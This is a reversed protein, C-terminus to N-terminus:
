KNSRRTRRKSQRRSKSKKKRRKLKNGAGGLKSPLEPPPRRPLAAKAAMQSTLSEVQEAKAAIQSTLNEVQEAKAAIQSTLSDIQSNLEINKRELDRIVQGNNDQAMASADLDTQLKRLDTQLKTLDAKTSRKLEKMERGHKEASTHKTQQADVAAKRLSEHETAMTQIEKWWGKEVLERAGIERRFRSTEAKQAQLEAKHAQLEAKQAQLKTECDEAM